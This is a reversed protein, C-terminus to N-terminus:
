NMHKRYKMLYLCLHPSLIQPIETFICLVQALSPSVHYYRPKNMIFLGTVPTIAVRYFFELETLYQLKKKQAAIKEKAM